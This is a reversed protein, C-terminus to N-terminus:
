LFFIGGFALHRVLEQSTVEGQSGGSHQAPPVKNVNILERCGTTMLAWWLGDLPSTTRRGAGVAARLTRVPAKLENDATEIRPARSWRFAPAM